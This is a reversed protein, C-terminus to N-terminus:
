RHRVWAVALPLAALRTMPMIFLVWPAVDLVGRNPRDPLASDFAATLGIALALWATLSLAATRLRLVGLSLGLFLAVGSLLVRCGIVAAIFRFFATDASTRLLLGVIFLFGFYVGIWLGIEGMIWSRGLLGNVHSNITRKWTWVLLGLAFSAALLYPKGSTNDQVGNRLFNLAEQRMPGPVNLAIMTVGALVAAVIAWTLLTSYTAIKLKARVIAADTTPVTAVTTALGNRDKVWTSKGGGAWGGAFGALGVPALLALQWFFLGHDIFFPVFIVPLVAAIVLPLSTGWIWWELWAQARAANAFARRPQLGANAASPRTFFAEWDPMRGLRAERVGLYAAAWGLAALGGLALTRLAEPVEKTSMTTALAVLGGAAATVLVIRLGRVPFPSWHLAQVWAICAMGLAAPWWLPPLDHVEHFPGIIFLVIFIWLLAPMAAGYAIPWLVLAGTHAPLRLASTPFGSARGGIDAQFDSYSFVSLLSVVAALFVAVSEIGVLVGVELARRRDLATLSPSAVAAMALVWAAILLGIRHQRWTAWAFTRTASTV